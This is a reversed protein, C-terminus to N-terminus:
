DVHRQNSIGKNAVKSFLIKFIHFKISNNNRGTDLKYSINISNYFSNTNLKTEISSRKGILNCFFHDTNVRNTQGARRIQM